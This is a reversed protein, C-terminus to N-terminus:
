LAVEQAVLEDVVLDRLSRLIAQDVDDFARPVPGIVCLTGVIAGTPLQLPAGAYFRIKPGDTVLPNDFFREDLLADPVVMVRPATIVHGCFSIDRGTECAPIGVNAKFWQREADVLSVLAIPVDFEESAFRVIRDFREEPPTDLILLERLAQLRQPEDSPLPAAIM